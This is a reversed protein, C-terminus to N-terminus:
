DTPFRTEYGHFPINFDCSQKAIDVVTKHFASMSDIRVLAIYELTLEGFPVKVERLVGRRVPDLAMARPLSALGLHAASIGALAALSDAYIINQPNVGNEEFWKNMHAGAGTKAGQILITQKEFEEQNLTEPLTLGPACYWGFDATGIPIRVMDTSRTIDVVIAVDLQGERLLAHLTQSAHVQLEVRMLSYRERLQSIFSGLWTVAALETVGLRLTSAIVDTNGFRESMSARQQLIARALRLVEQGEMTIRASRQTRNFLPHQFEREFDGILRSIASQTTGLSRAAKEFTGTDVVAIFAELERFTTM